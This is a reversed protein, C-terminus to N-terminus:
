EYFRDPQIGENSCFAKLTSGSEQYREYITEFMSLTWKKSQM